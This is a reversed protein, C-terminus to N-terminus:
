FTFYRNIETLEFVYDGNEVRVRAHTKDKELVQYDLGKRLSMAPKNPPYMFLDEIAMLKSPINVNINHPM